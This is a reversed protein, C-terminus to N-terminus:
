GTPADITVTGGDGFSPYDQYKPGLNTVVSGGSGFSLDPRGNPAYRVLAWADPDDPGGSGGALIKGDDQAALPSYPLSGDIM